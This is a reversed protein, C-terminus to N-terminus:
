SAQLIRDCLLKSYQPLAVYATVLPLTAPVFLMLSYPM